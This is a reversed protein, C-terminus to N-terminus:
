LGFLFLSIIHVSSKGIVVTLIYLGCIFYYEYYRVYSDRAYKEKSDKLKSASFNQQIEVLFMREVNRARKLFCGTVYTVVWSFVLGCVTGFFLIGEFDFENSGHTSYLVLGNVFYMSTIAVTLQCYRSGKTFEETGVMFISYVPHLTMPNNRLNDNNMNVTNDSGILFIFFFCIIGILMWTAVNYSAQNIFYNSAQTDELLCNRRIVKDGTISSKKTPCAVASSANLNFKGLSKPVLMYLKSDKVHAVYGANKTNHLYSRISEYIDTKTSLKETNVQDFIGVLIIKDFGDFSGNYSLEFHVEKPQTGFSIENEKAGMQLIHCQSTFLIGDDLIGPTATFSTEELDVPNMPMSLAYDNFDIKIYDRCVSTSLITTTCFSQPILLALVLTTITLPLSHKQRSKTQYTKSPFM